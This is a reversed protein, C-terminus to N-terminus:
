SRRTWDPRGRRRAHRTSREAARGDRLSTGTPATESCRAGPRWSADPDLGALCNAGVYATEPRETSYRLTM